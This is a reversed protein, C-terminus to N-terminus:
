TVILKTQYGQKYDRKIAVHNQFPIPCFAVCFILNEMLSKTLLRSWIHLSINITM